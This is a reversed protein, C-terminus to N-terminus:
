LEASSLYELALDYVPLVMAAVPGARIVTVAFGRYLARERYVTHAMEMTSLLPTSNGAGRAAVQSYMRNRLVDLPYIVSWCTVGALAAAAMRESLRLTPVLGQAERSAATHRKCAEYVCYYMARGLTESALHPYFGVYCGSLNLRGKPLLTERLAQRFGNGTVQQCTKIMVFPSTVFALGTGTVFGAIGVNMLSDHYLYDGGNSTSSGDARHLVRRMGDYTAFNISQIIGVTFLPVSAGSYLARVTRTLSYSPITGTRALPSIVAAADSALTSMNRVTARSSSMGASQPALSSSAQTLPMAAGTLFHKNTGTSSTQAWVKLSDLPHGFAVGVLGASYGAIASNRASKWTVASISSQSEGESGNPRLQQTMTGM